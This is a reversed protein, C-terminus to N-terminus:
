VPAATSPVTTVFNIRSAVPILQTATIAIEADFEAVIIGYWSAISGEVMPAEDIRYTRSAYFGKRGHAWWPKIEVLCSSAAM